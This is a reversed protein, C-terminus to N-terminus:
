AKLLERHRLARELSPQMKMERFEAIAFDLHEVATDREDPYHELLLEALDLRALAVEPRFRIRRCLELAQEFYHRAEAPQGILRTAEGLLRAISNLDRARTNVVHAIPSFAPSLAAVLDFDKLVIAAEFLNAAAASNFTAIGRRDLVSLVERSEETRNMHAFILARRPRGVDRVLRTSRDLSALAADLEGLYIRSRFALDTAESEGYVEAGGELSGAIMREASDIAAEFNGDLTHRTIDNTFPRVVVYPDKTREAMEQIESWIREAGQRDGHALLYSACHSLAQALTHSRVGNRPRMSFEQALLNAEQWQEASVSAGMLRLSACQFLAQNDELNRAQSLARELHENYPGGAGGAALAMGLEAYVRAVTGPFTHDNARHAWTRWEQMDQVAAGAYRYLADLAIRCAEAARERSETSLALTFAEESIVM